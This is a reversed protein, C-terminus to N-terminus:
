LNELFYNIAMKYGSIGFGSIQGKCAKATVSKQRFEERDHINSLHVEIAPVDVSKIADYIALSYHTYAGPNIIIGDIKELHCKQIENIIEGEINSQYCEINVGNVSAYDEIERCVDDYSQSGYVGKERIGLFNLNPGQILMLKM